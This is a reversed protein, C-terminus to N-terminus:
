RHPVAREVIEEIVIDPHEAEVIRCDFAKQFYVIRSFYESLFPWMGESFSDGFMIARPLESKSNVM